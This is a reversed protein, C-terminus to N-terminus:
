PMIAWSGSSTATHIGAVGSHLLVNTLNSFFGINEDEQAYKVSCGRDLVIADTARKGFVAQYHRSLPFASAV